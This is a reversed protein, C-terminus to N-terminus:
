SRHLGLFVKTLMMNVDISWGRDSVMCMFTGVFPVAVIVGVVGLITACEVCFLCLGLNANSLAEVEIGPCQRVSKFLSHTVYQERDCLLDHFLCVFCSLGLLLSAVPSTVVVELQLHLDFFQLLLQFVGLLLHSFASDSSVQDFASLSQVVPVMSVVPKRV